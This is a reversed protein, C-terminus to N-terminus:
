SSCPNRNVTALAGSTIGGDSQSGIMKPSWAFCMHGTPSYHPNTGGPVIYSVTGDGMGGAGLPSLIEYPGLATGRQLPM